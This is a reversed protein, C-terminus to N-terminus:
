ARAVTLRVIRDEGAQRPVMNVEITEDFVTACGQLMGKALLELGRSSVYDLELATDTRSITHFRPLEADPYLKKVEKHIHSDISEIFDFFNTTDFYAPYNVKFSAALKEGFWTLVKAPDDGTEAALAGVLQGMESCAYTGVSTYAGGSELDCRDIVNEVAIPGLEDDVADLFETFVIGKM